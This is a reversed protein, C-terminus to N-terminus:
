TSKWFMPLERIVIWWAITVIRPPEGARARGVVRRSALSISTVLIVIRPWSSAFNSTRRTSEAAGISPAITRSIRPM